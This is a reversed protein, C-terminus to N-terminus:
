LSALCTKAIANLVLESEGIAPVLHFQIQPYQISLRQVIEPLDKRVHGGQGLFIPVVTVFRIQDAALQDTLETLTPTMLELFAHHVQITADVQQEVLQRIRLLPEAWRADRAGHAFLVLAKSVPNHSVDTM